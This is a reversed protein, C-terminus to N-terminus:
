INKINVPQSFQQSFNVDVTRNRKLINSLDHYVRKFNQCITSKCHTLKKQVAFHSLHIHIRKM